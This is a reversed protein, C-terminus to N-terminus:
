TKTSKRTKYLNHVQFQEALDFVIKWEHNTFFVYILLYDCNFKPKFQLFFQLHFYNKLGPKCFGSSFKFHMDNLQNIPAKAQFEVVHLTM